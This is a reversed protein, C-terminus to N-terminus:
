PCAQQEFLLPLSPRCHEPFGKASAISGLVCAILFPDKQHDLGNYAQTIFSELADRTAKDRSIHAREQRLTEASLVLKTFFSFSPLIMQPSNPSNRRIRFLILGIYVDDRLIRIHELLTTSMSTDAHRVPVDNLWTRFHAKEIVKNPGGQDFDRFAEDVLDELSDDTLFIRDEPGSLLAYVSWVDGLAMTEFLIVAKHKFDLELESHASPIETLMATEDHCLSQVIEFLGYHAPRDNEGRIKGSSGFDHVDRRRNFASYWQGFPWAREIWELFKPSHLSSMPNYKSRQGLFIDLLYRVEGEERLHGCLTAYVAWYMDAHYGFSPANSPEFIVAPASTKSCVRVSCLFALCCTAALANCKVSSFEEMQTLYESVSLHAFRFRDTYEDFVVMNCCISLIDSPLLPMDLDLGMSVAFIFGQPALSKQSCLLWKFIREAIEPNPEQSSNIQEMIIKYSGKLDRPLQRLTYLVNQPTKVKSPDCLSQIHLSVLRFMGQAKEVVTQVITDRLNQTHSTMGCLCKGTSISEDVRSEVFRRIDDDSDWVHVYINPTKELRHVIDHDDRSSVFVKVVNNSEALLRSLGNLLDQRTLPECEDLGDIVIIAPNADLLKLIIDLTNEFDLKEVERGRAERKRQLFTQAVAEPIEDFSATLQELISCLIEVPQSRELENTNRACYFFALPAANAVVNARAGLYEIVGAVLMSKGSGPIGHLWLISSSSSKMWELFRPKRLLWEGSGPLREKVKVRHHKIYPVTSLWGFVRERDEVALRHEIATIQDAIRTVPETLTDLIARLEDSKEVVIEQAKKIDSEVVDLKAVHLEIDGMKVEVAGLSNSVVGLMDGSVLRVYEEVRKEKAQIIAMRKLTVDDLQFVSKSIRVIAKQNFYECADLLYQLIAAYLQVIAGELQKKVVSPRRVYLHEIVEYRAILNFIFELGEMMAGHTKIDKM